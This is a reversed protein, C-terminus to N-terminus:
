FFDFVERGGRNHHQQGALTHAISVTDGTGCTGQGWGQLVDGGAVSGALGEGGCGLFKGLCCPMQQTSLAGGQGASM